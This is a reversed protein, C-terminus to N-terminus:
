GRRRAATEGAAARNREGAEVALVWMGLRLGCISSQRGSSSGTVCRRQGSHRPAYRTSLPQRYHAESPWARASAARNALPQSTACNEHFARVM